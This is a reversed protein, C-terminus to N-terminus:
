TRLISLGREIGQPYGASNKVNYLTISIQFFFVCVCVCENTVVPYTLYM